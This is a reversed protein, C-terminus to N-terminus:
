GGSYLIRTAPRLVPFTFEKYCVVTCEVCYNSQYDRLTAFIDDDLFNVQIPIKRCTNIQRLGLVGYGGGRVCQTRTNLISRWVLDIFPPPPSNFWLSPSLPLLPSYYYLDCLQISFVLTVFHVCSIALRYVRIFTGKCTFKKPHRCKANVEVVYREVCLRIVAKRLYSFITGYHPRLVQVVYLLYRKVRLFYKCKWKCIHVSAAAYLQIFTNPSHQFYNRM